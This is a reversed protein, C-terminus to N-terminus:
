RDNCKIEDSMSCSDPFSSFFLGRASYIRGGTHISSQKKYLFELATRSFYLYREVDDECGYFCGRDFFHRPHHSDIFYVKLNEVWGMWITNHFWEGQYYSMLDSYDISMDRIQDSDMCDYKPIIIDVDHGKWSQERPLGLLVDALGGVKALPAMESAIHIIHM